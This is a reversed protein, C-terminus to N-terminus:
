EEYLMGVLSIGGSTKDILGRASLRQLYTNRSSRQYGTIEDIQEPAVAVPYHEDLLIFIKREGEPLSHKYHERLATNTPLPQYDNGLASVGEPTAFLGNQGVGVYGASRLRQLYTNRSSRKYSTLITLHEPTVGDAHQAIAILCRREGFGITGDGDGTTAARLHVQPQEHILKAIVPEQKSLNVDIPIKAENLFAEMDKFMRAGQRRYNELLRRQSELRNDIQKTIESVAKKTAKEVAEVDLGSQILADDATIKVIFKM